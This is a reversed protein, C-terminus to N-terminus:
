DNLAAFDVQTMSNDVIQMSRFGYENAHFGQLLGGLRRDDKFFGM